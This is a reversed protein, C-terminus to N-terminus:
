PRHIHQVLLPCGLDPHSGPGTSGLGNEESWNGGRLMGELQSETMITENSEGELGNEGFCGQKIFHLGGDRQVRLLVFKAHKTRQPATCRGPHTLHSLSVRQM